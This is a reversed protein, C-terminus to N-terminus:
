DNGVAINILTVVDIVDIYGDQNIDFSEDYDEESMIHNIFQVIDLIDVIGDGNIDGLVTPQTSSEQELYIPHPPIYKINYSYQGLTEIEFTNIGFPHNIDATAFIQGNSEYSQADEVITTIWGLSQPDGSSQPTINQLTYIYVHDLGSPSNWTNRHVIKMYVTPNSDNENESPILDNWNSFSTYTGNSDFDAKFSSIPFLNDFGSNPDTIDLIEPNVGYLNLLICFDNGDTSSYPFVTSNDFTTFRFIAEATPDTLIIETANPADPEYVCSGDNINAIPNYNLANPDTCGLIEVDEETEEDVVDAVGGQYYISNVEDSGLNFWFASPSAASGPSDPFYLLHLQLCELEVYEITKKISTCLLLPYIHQNNIFGMKTYDIGYAKVGDILKDFRVYDGVEINLYKLPLKCKIILHRNRYHHTAMNQFARIAKIQNNTNIGVDYYLKTRMYKSEFDKINDDINELGNFELDEEPVLTQSSITDGMPSKTDKDGFYNDNKHDYDYKLNTGTRLDQRKTLDYNYSIIDLDEILISNDLDNENYTRKIHPFKLTGDFGIRPFIFTSKAIDEILEKSNIEDKQTFCFEWQSHSDSQKTADLSEHDIKNADYGLEKVFIDAIIDSPHQILSGNDDIRGTISGYLNQFNTKTDCVSMCTVEPLWGKMRAFYDFNTSVDGNPHQFNDTNSAYQNNNGTWGYAGLDVIYRGNNAKNTFKAIPNVYELEYSDDGNENITKVDYLELPSKGDSEHDSWNIQTPNKSGYTADDHFDSFRIIDGLYMGNGWTDSIQENLKYHYYAEAGYGYEEQEDVFKRERINRWSEDEDGRKAYTYIHHHEDGENISQEPMVWHGFSIWHWYTGYNGNEAIGGRNLFDIPPDTNIVFRFLTHKYYNDLLNSGYSNIMAESRNDNPTDNFALENTSLYDSDTMYEFEDELLRDDVEWHEDSDGYSITDDNSWSMGVSNRNLLTIKSPKYAVMLQVVKRSLLPNEVFKAIKTSDYVNDDIFEVQQPTADYGNFNFHTSFAYPTDNNALKYNINNSICCYHDDIDIFLSGYDENNFPYGYRGPRNDDDNHWGLIPRSDAYVKRNTGMVVPSKPMYGYVMPIKANRYHEMVSSNNTLSNKPLEQHLYTSSLDEATITVTENTHKIDRIEGFYFTPSIYENNDYLDSWSTLGQSDLYMSGVPFSSNISKYAFNIRKGILSDTNLMDSFRKGDYPNNSIKFTCKSITYKRNEVDIKETIVPNDLLLPSFYMGNDWVGQGQDIYPLGTSDDDSRQVTIDHTSLFISNEDLHAIDSEREIILLPILQINNSQIDDKFIKPLKM